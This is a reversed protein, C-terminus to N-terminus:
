VTVKVTVAGKDTLREGCGRVMDVLVVVGSVMESLPGAGAPPCTMLKLVPAPRTVKEDVLAVIAAPAVLVATDTMLLVVVPLSVIVADPVPTIEPVSETCTWARPKESFAPKTPMLRVAVPTM